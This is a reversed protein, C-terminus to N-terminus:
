RGLRPTSGIMPWPSPHLRPTYVKEREGVGGLVPMPNDELYQSYSRSSHRISSFFNVNCMLAFWKSLTYVQTSGTCCCPSSPTLLHACPPLDSSIHPATHLHRVEMYESGGPADTNKRAGPGETAGSSSSVGTGGCLEVGAPSERSHHKAVGGASVGAGGAAAAADMGSASTGGGSSIKRKPKAARLTSAARAFLINNRTPSAPADAMPRLIVERRLHACALAHLLSFRHVCLASWLSRTAEATTVYETGAVMPDGGAPPPKGHQDFSLMFTACDGWKATFTKFHTVGEWYRAYAVNTRFALGVGLMYAFVQYPYPNIFLFNILRKASDAAFPRYRSDPPPPPAYPRDRDVDHVFDESTALEIMISICASIFAPVMARPLASGACTLLLGMSSCGRPYLIMAGAALACLTRASPGHLEQRSIIVKSWYGYCTSGVCSLGSGCSECLTPYM